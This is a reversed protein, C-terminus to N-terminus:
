PCREKAQEDVKRRAVDEAKDEAKLSATNYGGDSGAGRKVYCVGKCVYVGRESRDCTVCQAGKGGRECPTQALLFALLLGMM